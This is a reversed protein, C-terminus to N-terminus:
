NLNKEVYLYVDNMTQMRDIAKESVQINFEEDLEMFFEVKDLSDLGHDKFTTIGKIVISDDFLYAQFIFNIKNRIKQNM